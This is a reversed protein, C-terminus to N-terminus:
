IYGYITCEKCPWSSYEMCNTRLCLLFLRWVKHFVANSTPPKWHPSSRTTHQMSVENLRVTPFHRTVPIAIVPM